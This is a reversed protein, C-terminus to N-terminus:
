RLLKQVAPRAFLREAYRVMAQLNGPLQLDLQTLTHLLIAWACDALNYEQGLFWGRQPFMGAAGTLQEALQKRAAKAGAGRARIDGVLAYLQSEIHQITMRIRARAVPDSPLLKPHPYREDLYEVIVLAPHLVVERDVLTPLTLAPNLIALDHNPRGPLVEEVRAGEVDKELLVLRVWLCSLSQKSAFLTVGARAAPKEAMVYKSRTLTVM